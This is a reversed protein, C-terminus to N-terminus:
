LKSDTGNKLEVVPQRATKSQFFTYSLTILRTTELDRDAGIAPDIFFVVPVDVVEGPALTMDEFCFCQLKNFYAGTLSPQVNFSAVGTLPKDSINQVKYFVTHTEGLKVDLATTDPTFRWPLGPAVNSDFRITIQRPDIRDAGQTAVMPTGGFGTVRCFLDYLPVSAFSLGIMGVTVAACIMATRALRPDPKPPSPYTL